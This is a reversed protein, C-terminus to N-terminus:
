TTKFTVVFGAEELAELAIRAIVWTRVGCVKEGEANVGADHVRWDTETRNLAKAIAERPWAADHSM